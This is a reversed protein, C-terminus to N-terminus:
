RVRRYRNSHQTFQTARGDAGIEFVIEEGLSDDKRIRRFRHEGVKKFRDMEKLPDMTPFEVMTLGEDWPVIAVEGGWPQVDYTGVYKRLTSDTAKGEEPEKIAEKIAPAVIDYLRQAFRGTNVGGANALFVIGVREGPMLLLQTRYGPCSGGHGVFMKSGDDDKWIAFGLGWLTEFDPEAWHIRYMERLSTAKLVETGGKELLRFQWSAFKGLDTATSAFGAAAGIGQARFFPLPRRQGDRDLATYGTALRKGREEEPMQPTTNALRLPELIRTRVYEEYPSGSVSSVVEGALTIGLNSYQFHSEPSYLAEQASIRSVVEEHTPFTFDPASWYPFDSERPLGSAHTLLGEITIDGEGETKKLRFWSLHKGVPDELHIKGADRQQMVAVSTFLKSISCISYITDVTAPLKAEVDAMGFAGSWVVEQDHVIEASVGPIRDYARQAELWTKALEVARLVRPDNAISKPEPPEALAGRSSVTFLSALLIGAVRRVKM